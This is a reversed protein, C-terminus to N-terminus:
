DDMQPALIRPYRMSRFYSAAQGRGGRLESYGNSFPVVPEALSFIYSFLTPHVRLHGRDYSKKEFITRTRASFQATQYDSLRIFLNSKHYSFNQWSMGKWVRM